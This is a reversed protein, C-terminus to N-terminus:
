GLVARVAIMLSYCGISGERGSKRQRLREQVKESGKEEQVSLSLAQQREGKVAQQLIMTALSVPQLSPLAVPSSSKAGTQRVVTSTAVCVENRFLQPRVLAASYHALVRHITSVQQGPAPLSRWASEILSGLRHQQKRIFSIHRM